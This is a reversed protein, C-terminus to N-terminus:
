FHFNNSVILMLLPVSYGEQAIAQKNFTMASQQSTFKQIFNNNLELIVISVHIELMAAALNVGSMEM